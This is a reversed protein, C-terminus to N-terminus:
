PDRNLNLYQTTKKPRMYIPSQQVFSFLKKKDDEKKSGNERKTYTCYVLTKISHAPTNKKVKGGGM